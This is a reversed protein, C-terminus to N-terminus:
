PVCIPAQRDGKTLLRKQPTLKFVGNLLCPRPVHHHLCHRRSRATTTRSSATRSLPLNSSGLLNPLERNLSNRSFDSRPGQGNLRPRIAPGPLHHRLRRRLVHTLVDPPVQCRRGYCRWTHPTLETIRRFTRIPRTRPSRTWLAFRRTSATATTGVSTSWPPPDAQNLSQTRELSSNLDCSYFTKVPNTTRHVM